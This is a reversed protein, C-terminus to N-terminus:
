CNGPADMGLPFLQTGVSIETHTDKIKSSSLCVADLENCHKPISFNLALMHYFLQMLTPSHKLQQTEMSIWSGGRGGACPKGLIM